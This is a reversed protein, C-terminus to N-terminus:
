LGQDKYPKKQDQLKNKAIINRIMTLVEWEEYPALICAYVGLEVAQKFSNIHKSFRVRYSLSEQQLHANLQDRFTQTIAKAVLQDLAFWIISGALLSLITIKPTLSLRKFPNFRLM